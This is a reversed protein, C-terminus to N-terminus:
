ADSGPVQALRAAAREIMDDRLGLKSAMYFVKSADTSIGQFRSMMEADQRMAFGQFLRGQKNDQNALSGSRDDPGITMAPDYSPAEGVAGPQNQQLPDAGAQRLADADTNNQSAGAEHQQEHVVGTHSGVTADGAAADCAAADVAAAAAAGERPPAAAAATTDAEPQLRTANPCRSVRTFASPRHPPNSAAGWTPLSRAPTDPQRPTPAQLEATKPRGQKRTGAASSSSPQQATGAEGAALVQMSPLPAAISDM